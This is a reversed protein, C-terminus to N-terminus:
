PVPGTQTEQARRSAVLLDAIAYEGYHLLGTSVERRQFFGTKFAIGSM